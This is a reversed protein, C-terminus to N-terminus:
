LMDRPSSDGKWGVYSKKWNKYDMWVNPTHNTSVLTLVDDHDGERWPARGIKQKLNNLCTPQRAKNRAASLSPLLLAALIAIIAVVVLLEIVTFAAKVKMNLRREM